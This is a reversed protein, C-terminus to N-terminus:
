VGVDSISRGLTSPSCLAHQERKESPEILLHSIEHLIGKRCRDGKAPNGVSRQPRCLALLEAAFSKLLLAPPARVM